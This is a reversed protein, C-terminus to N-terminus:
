YAYLLMKYYLVKGKSLISSDAIRSSNNYMNKKYNSARTFLSNTQKDILVNKTETLIM